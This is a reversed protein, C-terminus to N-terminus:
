NFQSLLTFATTSVIFNPNHPFIPVIARSITKRSSILFQAFMDKLELIPDAVPDDKPVEVKKKSEDKKLNSSGKGESM